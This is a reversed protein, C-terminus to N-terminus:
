QGAPGARLLRLIFGAPLNAFRLCIWFKGNNQQARESERICSYESCESLASTESEIAFELEDRNQANKPLRLQTQTFGLSDFHTSYILSHVM